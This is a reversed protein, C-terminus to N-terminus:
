IHYHWLSVCVLCCCHTHIQTDGFDMYRKGGALIHVGDAGEAMPLAGGALSRNMLASPPQQQQQEAAPVDASAPAIAATLQRLRAAM